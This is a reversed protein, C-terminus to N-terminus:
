EVETTHEAREKLTILMKREMYFQFAQAFKAGITASFTPSGSTNSRLILRTTDGSQPELIFQWTSSKNCDVPANELGFCGVLAHNPELAKVYLGPGPNLAFDKPTFRIFDGVALNQWEPRTEESNTVNLRLLWNEVWLYSYMGGRDVGLQVLWPWIAEPPADITIAKTTAFLPAAVLDDGPYTANLEVDTAGWRSIWPWFFFYYLTMVIVIAIGLWLLGRMVNHLSRRSRPAPKGLPIPHVYNTM